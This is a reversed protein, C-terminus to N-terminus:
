RQQNHNCISIEAFGNTTSSPQRTIINIVRGMANRGYLKGQPGRLIEIREVDFLTPIYTDLGFQNVGDIYTAVAPDYSTTAIGRISTVNRDDGPNSSYLNPVIATLENTNWLRYQQVQRASIASISFPVKQLVEDTKQASVVVADLQLGADIMEINFPGTSGGAVAIDRYITVYGIASVQLLYKGPALNQFAFKGQEDSVAGKNTNLLYLTAGPVPLSRANSVKGSYIGSQQAEVFSCISVFLVLCLIPNRMFM